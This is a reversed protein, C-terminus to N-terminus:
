KMVKRYVEGAVREYQFTGIKALGDNARQMARTNAYKSISKMAANAIYPSAMLAASIAMGKAYSKAYEKTSAKAYSEGRNIRDNIRNVGRKGINQQDIARNLSDYKKNYTKEIGQRYRTKAAKRENRSSAAKKEAKYTRKLERQKGSTNLSGDKNYYKRRVGWKMGKVGYHYLEDDHEAIRTIRYEM